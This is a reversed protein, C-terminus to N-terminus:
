EDEDKEGAGKQEDEDAPAAAEDLGDGTIVGLRVLIELHFPSLNPGMARHCEKCNGKKAKGDNLVGIDINFIEIDAEEALLERWGKNFGLPDKLRISGDAPDKAYGGDEGRVGYNDLLETRDADLAENAKRVSRFTRGIRLAVKPDAWSTGALMSLAAFAELVDQKSCTIKKGAM